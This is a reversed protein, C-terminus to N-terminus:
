PKYQMIVDFAPDRGAAFDEYTQGVEIDPVLSPPDDNMHQFYKTSYNVLLGSYPLRFTDVEGFHNPKGGTAEGVFIADTKNKFSVANMLGSSFTSPGIVVFLRGRQNINRNNSLSVIFPNLLLSSGGTNFRLDVILRAAERGNLCSFLDRNFDTFSRSPMEKCRNYQFFLTKTDSLYEYWYNSRENLLYLPPKVGDFSVANFWRIGSFDPVPKIRISFEKGRANEFVFRCNEMDDIIKLGSLVEPIVLYQPNAHKLWSDNEHPIIESIAVCAKEISTSGIKVLKCGLVGQYEPSTRIAFCGDKFWRFKLPYTRFQSISGRRSIGSHSDGIRVFIRDLELAIENDTLEPVRQSLVVISNQFEARSIKFFLNKHRKPLETSFYQLDQRWRAGRVSDDAPLALISSGLSILFGISALVTIASNRRM